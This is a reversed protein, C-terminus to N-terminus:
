KIQFRDPEKRVRTSRRLTQPLKEPSDNSEEKDSSSLDSEKPIESEEVSRQLEQRVRMLIKGLHNQGTGDGGDGWYSDHKTHEVLQRNGTDLLRQRLVPRQQGL